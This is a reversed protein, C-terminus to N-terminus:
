SRGEYADHMVKNILAGWMRFVRSGLRNAAPIALHGGARREPLQRKTRRRVRHTGSNKINSRDYESYADRDDTGFEYPKTLISDGTGAFLSNNGPIVAHPQAVFKRQAKTGGGAELEEGWAASMQQRSTADILSRLKAGATALARSAARLDQGAEASVIGHRSAM